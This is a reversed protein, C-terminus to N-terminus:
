NAIRYVAHIAYDKPTLRAMGMPKTVQLKAANVGAERDGFINCSDKTQKM